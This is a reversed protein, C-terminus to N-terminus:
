FLNEIKMKKQKKQRFILNLLSKVSIGFNIGMKGFQSFLAFTGGTKALFYTV